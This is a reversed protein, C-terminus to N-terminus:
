MRIRRGVDGQVARERFFNWFACWKDLARNPGHEDVGVLAVGFRASPADSVMARAAEDAPEAETLPVAGDGFAVDVDVVQARQGLDPTLVFDIGDDRVTHRM